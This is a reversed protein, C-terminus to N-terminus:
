STAITAVGGDEVVFNFNFRDDGDDDEEGEENGVSTVSV